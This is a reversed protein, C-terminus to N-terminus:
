PAQGAVTYREAFDKRLEAFSGAAIAGRIREMLRLYFRLNHTTLLRLALIEDINLLHRLYARSFNRCAYCDCDSQIPSFDEKYKASRVNIPGNPAFAKGNRANRTPLVSDFMDIGRAVCEIIDLPTGVGMLHRPRDKPLLAATFETIEYMQNIPEGVSLGGIAYGDFGIELLAEVSYKRLDHYVGGQVIGFLASQSEGAPSAQHLERCRKEWRLSTEVSKRVKEYECPFPACEDLTTIIDAGFARQAAMVEDPGLFCASGDIHSRFHVGSESVKRREALSFVQYGGSDTFIPAHWSMFKHLGGAKRIIEIGPRLTLHYTNSLIIQAGVEKLERPSITKVAASTGVPMFCPTEIRGHATSIEGLRASSSDDQKLIRLEM